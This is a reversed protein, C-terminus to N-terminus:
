SNRSSNRGNLDDQVDLVSQVDVEVGDFWDPDGRPEVGGIGVDLEVEAGRVGAHTARGLVSLPGVLVEADLAEHEPDCCPEDLWVVLWPQKRLREADRLRDDARDLFSALDGVGVAYVGSLDAVQAVEGVTSLAVARCLAGGFAWRM